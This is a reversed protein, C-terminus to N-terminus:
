LIKPKKIFFGTMNCMAAQLSKQKKSYFRTFILNLITAQLIETNENFM